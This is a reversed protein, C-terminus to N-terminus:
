KGEDLQKKLLTRLAPSEPGPAHQHLLSGNQDYLLYRPISRLQLEQLLPSSRAHQVLYSLSGPGDLGERRAARQWQERNEDLSLYVFAVGQGSFEEQLKRSAPMAALCPRCWSAWFDVYVLKGRQQHLLGAFSEQQDSHSTLALDQGPRAPADLQFTHTIYNVLATDQVQASFRALYHQVEAPSAQEAIRKMYALQLSKKAAPSFYPSASISDYVATLSQSGGGSAPSWYLQSVATRLFNQYFFFHLLSDPAEALLQGLAARGLSGQRLAIEKQQYQSKAKYFSYYPDALAGQQQLSDLLQQEQAFQRSGEALAREEGRALQEALPTTDTFDYFAYAMGSLYKIQGPFDGRSIRHRKLFEYNLAASPATRNLLRAQPQRGSFSILLSDGKQLLFSLRDAGRYTYEVEVWPRRTALRLSDSAPADTLELLRVIGADDTYQLAIGANFEQGNALTHRTHDPAQQFILTIQGPAEGRPEGEQEGEASPSCGALATLLMLFYLAPLLRM